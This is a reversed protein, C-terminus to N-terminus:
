GRKSNLSTLPPIISAPEASFIGPNGSNQREMQGSPEQPNVAEAAAPRHPSANNGGAILDAPTASSLPGSSLPIYYKSPDGAALSITYGSGYPVAAPINWKSRFIEWNRELSRKYDINLAQFTQGGVHHIFVDKAILSKFGAIAARVCFDDDEFNGSGFREDLGGIRDVVARRAMLCFGVLRFSEATQGSNKEALQKAFQHMQEMNKYPVDSILQPGSVFNSMPGVLGAEPHNQFVALMRSLWGDTVVTDNNLLLVYEGRSLALGQNNGAAFGRNEKNFIVHVNDRGDKYERFYEITENDSGNDVIIIEHPSTTYKDISDLCSKTLALQNYGLIIISTLGAIRRRPKKCIALAYEGTFTPAYGPSISKEQFQDDSQFLLQVDEFFNRLYAAFTGRQYYAVHHPNGVPGGLPTSIVLMGDDTLLRIIEKLFLEGEVVHELTEFSNIIEFSKDPYHIHRIDMVEFKLNDRRYHAQCYAITEPSNDGGIVQRATEALLDSGYGTGCAVDLIRRGAVMPSVYRYRAWHERMIQPDMNPALPMAREGTFVNDGAGRNSFDVGAAMEEKVRRYFDAANTSCLLPVYENIKDQHWNWWQLERLMAIEEDPFRKRIIRAPDGGVIAYPPVDKTIVAGAAIVAGDGITIGSMITCDDGLWVDNGIVVDGNTSPLVPLGRNNANPWDENMPSSPFPYSTIWEARHNGGLFIKVNAAISCFRGIRLKAEEGWWRIVPAGYTFDGIEFGYKDVFDAMIVSTYISRDTMKERAANIKHLTVSKMGTISELREIAIDLGLTKPSLEKVREFIQFASDYKGQELACNGKLVLLEVNDPCIDIAHVVINEAEEYNDQYLHLNALSHLLRVNHPNVALGHSFAKLAGEANGQQLYCYGLDNWLLASPEQGISLNIAMEYIEIAQSWAGERRAAEALRVLSAPNMEQSKRQILGHIFDMLEPHTISTEWPLLRWANEAEALDDMELTLLGCVIAAHISNPALRITNQAIRLGDSLRGAHHYLNILNVQASINDCDTQIAKLFSGEATEMDGAKLTLEGLKNYVVSEGPRREIFRKLIEIAEEKNGQGFLTDSLVSYAEAMDPYQQVITNFEDVAKTHNGEALANRGQGLIRYYKRDPSIGAYQRTITNKKRSWTEKITKIMQTAFIDPTKKTRMHRDAAKGMEYRRDASLSYARRLAIRVQNIELKPWTVGEFQPLYHLMEGDVVIKDENSSIITITNESSLLSRDTDWADAAVVLKRRLIAEAIPAAFAIDTSVYADCNDILRMIDSRTGLSEDIVVTADSGTESRSKELLSLLDSKPKGPVPHWLPYNVRLYLEVDTNGEFEELYSRILSDWRRNPSFTGISLFRFKQKSSLNDKGPIPQIPLFQWMDPPPLTRILEPNIGSLIWASKESDTMICLQDMRNCADVWVAPVENGTFGTIMIRVHPEPLQVNLWAESPVHLFIATVPPILPTDELSKLIDLDCDDVGPQVENVSAIKVKYGANHLALAGARAGSAAGTRNYFPAVFVITGPIQTNM